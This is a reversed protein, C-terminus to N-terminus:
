ETEPKCTECEKWRFGNHWEGHGAEIAKLDRERDMWAEGRLGGFYFSLLCLSFIALIVLMTREPDWKTM